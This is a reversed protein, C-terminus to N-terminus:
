SWSLAAGTRTKRVEAAEIADEDETIEVDPSTEAPKPLVDAVLDEEGSILEDFSIQKGVPASAPVPSSSPAPVENEFNNERSEANVYNRNLAAAIDDVSAENAVAPVPAVPPVIVEPTVVPPATPAIIPDPEAAKPEPESAEAPASAAQMQAQLQWQSYAFADQQRLLNQAEILAMAAM